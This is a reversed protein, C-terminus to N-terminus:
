VLGLSAVRDLAKNTTQSAAEDKPNHITFNFQVTRNGGLGGTAGPTLPGGAGGPSGPLGPSSGLADAISTSAVSAIRAGAKSVPKHMAKLGNVMGAGVYRMLDFMVRSPSHIGLAARIAGKMSKAIDTLTQGIQKKRTNLGKIIGDAAQIGADYMSSAMAKSETAATDAITTFASSIGSVDARSAQTLAEAVAAGQEIGASAVQQVVAQAYGMARMKKLNAVFAKAKGVQVQLSARIASASNGANLVNAQSSIGSAMSDQFDSKSQMLADRKATQAALASANAAQRNLETTAARGLRKISGVLSREAKGELAKRTAGVLDTVYRQVASASGKGVADTLGSTLSAALGAQAKGRKAAGKTAQTKTISRAIVQANHSLVKQTAETVKRGRETIGQALATMMSRGSHLTWGSGSFPGEKAPSFPLLNRAKSLVGKVAGYVDDAKHMIGDILGQIIAEGSHLLMSGANGLAGVIKGPLSKVFGVVRGVGSSVAGTIKSWAGTVAGVLATSAGTVIGKIFDWAKQVAESIAGWVKVTAAKVKDWNKIILVVAAVIAAIAWGIPGMAIVWAAAMRAAQIMSQVGMLVWGAVVRAVTAAMTATAVAANAIWVAVVRAGSAVTSAVMRAQQAIWAGAAKAGQVAVLTAYQVYFVGTRVLTAVQVAASKVAAAQQAVWSAVVKTKTITARTAAVIMASVFVGTLVGAAIKLGTGMGPVAHVVETISDKFRKVYKPAVTLAPILHDNVVALVKTFVPLLASGLTSKLDTFQAALVQQQHALTGTEKSFAGSSKISQKNILNTTAQRNIANQQDANLDKLAKGYKKKALADAETNITSQKLSIGYRELPDFEGKFASSLAEVAETASGGFTASLDAGKQIANETAKVLQNGKLGKNMFLSGIVNANERYSNASLGVAKAAAKSADIISESANGFVTETAGMSQQADSAASTVGKAFTLAGAVGVGVMIGAAAKVHTGLGLMKRGGKDAKDGAQTLGDGTQQVKKQFSDLDKVAGTTNVVVDAELREAKIPM